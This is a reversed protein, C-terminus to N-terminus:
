PLTRLNRCTKKTLNGISCSLMKKWARESKARLYTIFVRKCLGAAWCRHPQASTRRRSVLSEEPACFVSDGEEFACLELGAEQGACSMESVYPPEIGCCNMGKHSRCDPRVASAAAGAGM